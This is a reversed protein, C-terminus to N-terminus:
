ILTRLMVVSEYNTFPRWDCTGVVAYGWRKYMAILHEAANATDLAVRTAGKQMAHTVAHDHLARGIGKGAHEPLVAFQNLIWTTPHRYFEVESEPDPPRITVTGVIVGDLVAVFGAGKNLRDLTDKASQHTGWFRLGNVALVAYGKHIVDTIREIDDDDHFPRILDMM